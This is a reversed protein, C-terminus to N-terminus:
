RKTGFYIGVISTILSVFFAIVGSQGKMKAIDTSNKFSRGNIVDLRTNVGDVKKDLSEIMIALGENTVRAMM